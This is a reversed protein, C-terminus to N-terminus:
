DYLLMKILSDFHTGRDASPNFYYGNAYIYPSYLSFM